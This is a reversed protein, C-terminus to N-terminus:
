AAAGAIQRTAKRFAEIDARRHGAWWAAVKWWRTYPCESLKAYAAYGEDSYRTRNLYKGQPKSM